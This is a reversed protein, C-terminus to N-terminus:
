PRRRIGSVRAPPLKDRKRSTQTSWRLAIQTSKKNLGDVLSSGEPRRGETQAAKSKRKVYERGAASAWWDAEESESRLTRKFQPMEPKPRPM